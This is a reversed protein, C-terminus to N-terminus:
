EGPLGALYSVDNASGSAAIIFVENLNHVPLLPSEGQQRVLIGRTSGSNTVDSGGIYINVTGENKIIVWRCNISDASLASATIGISVWRARLSGALEVGQLVEANWSGPKAM